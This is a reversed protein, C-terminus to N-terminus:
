QLKYDVVIKPRKTADTAESTSFLVMRYIQENQLQLCFGENSGATRMDKVLQTVDIDVANFNWQSTTGPIEVQSADTTPPRSNWTVTSEDWTGTVRKIWGKNENPSTGYPSGPYHSNGPPAFASSAVGYFSIKASLITATAPISALGSFKVYSRMSGEGFGQASYTWRSYNLEVLQGFNTTAASAPGNDGEKYLVLADQGDSGPQLTMTITPSASVTVTVNDVGTGGDNDVAWLQFVYTGSILGSINTTLSGPSQIVAVSPGSIQSWLYALVTGDEDSATGTVSVNSTPLQVSKPDGADVHPPKNLELDKNCSLTSILVLLSLTTLKTLRM